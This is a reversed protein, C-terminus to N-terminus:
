KLEHLEIIFILHANAPVVNDVSKAGYGLQPPVRLLRTGGARMGIVGENWGQMVRDTGIQFSVQKNQKRTNFLERGRRGSDNLWGTFHIVATEGLKAQEGTGIKLDKYELGSSTTIFAESAQSVGALALLVLLAGISIFLKTM